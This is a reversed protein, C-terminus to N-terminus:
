YPGWLNPLGEWQKNNRRDWYNKDRDEIMEFKVIEHENSPLVDNNKVHPHPIQRFFNSTFVPIEGQEM